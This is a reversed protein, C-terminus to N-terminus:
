SRDLPRHSPHRQPTAPASHQQIRCPSASAPAGGQRIRRSLKLLSTPVKILVRLTSLYRIHYCIYYHIYNYMHNMIYIYIHNMYSLNSLRHRAHRAHELSRSGGARGGGARTLSSIIFRFLTFFCYRIIIM